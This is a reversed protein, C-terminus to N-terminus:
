TIRHAFDALAFAIGHDHYKPFNRQGFDVPTDLSSRSVALYEVWEKLWREAIKRETISEEQETWLSEAILKGRM